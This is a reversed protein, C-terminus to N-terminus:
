SHAPVNPSCSGGRWAASRASGKPGCRAPFTTCGAAVSGVSCATRKTAIIKRADCRCASQKTPGCALVTEGGRCAEALTQPDTDILLMPLCDAASSGVCQDAVKRRLERMVRGAAGGLGIVLTPTLPGSLPIDALPPALREGVCQEAELEFRVPEASAFPDDGDAFVQTVSATSNLSDSNRVM